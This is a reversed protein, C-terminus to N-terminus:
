ALLRKGANGDVDIARQRMLHGFHITGVGIAQGWLYRFRDALTTSQESTVADLVHLVELEAEAEGRLGAWGDDQSGAAHTIGSADLMVEGLEDIIGATGENQDAILSFAGQSASEQFGPGCDGELSAGPVFPDVDDVEIAETSMGIPLIKFSIETGEDSADMFDAEDVAFPGLRFAEGVVESLKAEGIDFDGPGAVGDGQVGGRLPEGSSRGM